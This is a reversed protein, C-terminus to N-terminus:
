EIYKECVVQYLEEITHVSELDKVYLNVHYIDRIMALVGLGVLSSWEELEKLSQYYSLESYTTQDFQGAFNKLFDIRDIM